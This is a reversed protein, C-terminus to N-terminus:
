FGLRCVPVVLSQSWRVQRYLGEPSIVSVRGTAPDSYQIAGTRPDLGHLIVFHGVVGASPHLLAIVACRRHFVDALECLSGSRPVYSSGIGYSRFLQSIEGLSAPRDKPWGTLRSVIDVKHFDM